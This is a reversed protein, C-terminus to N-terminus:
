APLGLYEVTEEPMDVSVRLKYIVFTFKEPLPVISGPQYITVKVEPGVANWGRDLFFSLREELVFNCVLQQEARKSLEQIVEALFTSAYGRGRVDDNTRLGGFVCASYRKEEGYLSKMGDFVVERPVLDMFVVRTGDVHLMANGTARAGIMGWRRLSVTGSEPTVESMRFIGIKGDPLTIEKKM